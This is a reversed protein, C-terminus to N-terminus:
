LSACARDFGDWNTRYKPSILAPTDWSTMM